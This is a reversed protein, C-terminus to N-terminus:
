PLGRSLAIGDASRVREYRWKNGAGDGWAGGAQRLAVRLDKPCVQFTRFRPTLRDRLTGGAPRPRWQLGRWSSAAPGPELPTLEFNADFLFRPAVVSGLSRRSFAGMLCSPGPAMLLMAKCSDLHQVVLMTTRSTVGVETTKPSSGDGVTPLYEQETLLITPRCVFECVPVLSAPLVSASACCFNKTVISSFLCSGSSRHKLASANSSRFFSLRPSFGPVFELLRDSFM